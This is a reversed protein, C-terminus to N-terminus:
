SAKAAGLGKGAAMLVSAALIWLMFTIFTIASIVNGAAFAGSKALIAGGGVLQVLGVLLAAWGLKRAIVGTRIMVASAALFMAATPFAFLGSSLMNSLDFLARIVAQNGESAVRFSLTAHVAGGATALAALFIGSGFVVSSLRGAGGEAQALANRLSGLFWLFFVIGLGIIYWSALFKTRHDSFYAAIKAIPDDPKPPTGLMIAQIILLAVFVIGSAAAMREWRANSM